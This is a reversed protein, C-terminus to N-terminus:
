FSENVFHYICITLKSGKLLPERWHPTDTGSYLVGDGIQLEVTMEKKEVEFKLPIAIEKPTQDHVVSLNWKCEKRDTHKVLQQGSFYKALFSYSPKVVDIGSLIENIQPTLAFHLKRFRPEDNIRPRGVVQDLDMEFAGTKRLEYLYDQYQKITEPNLLNRLVAVKGSPDWDYIPPSLPNSERTLNM